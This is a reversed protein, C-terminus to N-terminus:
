REESASFLRYFTLLEFRLMEVDTDHSQKLLIAFSKAELVLTADKLALAYAPRVSDWDIDDMVIFGKPSVLPLYMSVDAEVFITDHNGDIHLLDIPIRNQSFFGAASQSTKRLIECNNELGLAGISAEVKEYISDYDTEEIFKTLAKQLEPIADHEFAIERCYPDIGYAMGENKQITYALPFLSKGRYVGIEVYTKLRYRYTLYCMLLLKNRPSGGGFDSPIRNIIPDLEKLFDFAEM